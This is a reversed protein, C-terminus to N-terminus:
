KKSVIKIFLSAKPNLSLVANHWELNFEDYEPFINNFIPQQVKWDVPPNVKLKNQFDIWSTQMSQPQIYEHIRLWKSIIGHLGIYYVNEKNNSVGFM